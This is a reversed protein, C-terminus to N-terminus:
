EGYVLPAEEGRIRDNLRPNLSIGFENRDSARQRSAVSQRITANTIPYEPFERNFARMQELADAPIPEGAMIADGIARQIGRREGQIREQRNMMRSNAAYRESVAAPTFGLAQNIISTVPVDELILDGNRTEVGEAAYRGAKIIDRFFKPVWAETGRVFYGSTYLDVARAFGGGIGVTPGLLDVLTTTYWEEGEMIRDNDRFWLNPSGIRNTLDTGTVHGPIGNLVMGMTYNWAAPGIGDGELLLADQLFRDVDDDGGDFFLGLLTTIIGYGWVGRIGAHAMMSLTVGVFQTRAEKRVEASEGAVMQHLDRAFRFIMNVSFQRFQTFVKMWDNQMFRPRATNSYDYHIKFTLDAASQIAEDQWLGEKRAMRYSALFTATRNLVEAKHFLYGFARMVTEVRPSYEVGTEAISANDHAQTKDIAGRRLAEELAAKEDATLRGSNLMDGKALAFDKIARGTQRAADSVGQNPFSAGMIAPGFVTTQSLNVMYNAPSAGLYWIFAISSARATWPANTPQMVFEHRKALENVILGSREPDEASRSQVQAEEFNNQLDVGYKLRALQHAGHFMHFTFARLADKSYGARGKRHIRNTRISQDPLTELWRQWVADMLKNDSGADGLLKEVDAVFAPDVQAKLADSESLVGTQIKWGEAEMRDAERRQERKSEFRSFSVVKGSDDRATVFYQGFRALPFYPGKLRNSEFQARLGNIRSNTGWGSRARAADLLKTAKDIAEKKAPGTLGEDRIREMEAKHEREARKFAMQAAKRINELVATEFEDGMKDYTKAVTKFMAQYEPPLAAFEARLRAHDQRALGERKLMDRAWQANPNGTRYMKLWMRAKDFPAVDFGKSPDIGALTSRHMLDMLRGNAEKGKRNLSLWSQAVEATTAQWENRLADMEEKTRLYARGAPLKRGLESLLPRLPVVALLNTWRGGGMSDTLLDEFFKKNDTRWAKANTPIDRVWDTAKRFRGSEDRARDRGPMRLEKGTIQVASDDYIVYNRSGDGDARSGGDLYRHGPIGAERLAVSAARDANDYRERIEESRAINEPTWGAQSRNMEATLSQGEAYARDKFNRALGEYFDQGTMDDWDGNLLADAKDYAAKDGRGLQANLMDTLMTEIKDKTAKPQESMPADWDLLDTDDPIEVTYLRGAKPLTYGSETMARVLRAEITRGVSEYRDLVDRLSRGDRAANLIEEHISSAAEAEGKAFKAVVFDVGFSMKGQTLRVPALMQRYHEAVERRDAFYMGWGFAQAGEGTNMFETSFRDFDAASGHYARLEAPTMRGGGPGSPGRGGIGGETIARFTRGASTFGRGILANGIAMLIDRVRQFASALPSASDRAEAWERYQEAIVEEIIERENLNQDKYRDRVDAMRADDRRAARVMDRWEAGTFLGYPTGWINSDRLAHIIEHRMVGLAGDPAAPNVEITRGRQRGQIPIGAADALGRVVRVTMTQDLGSRRLEANVADTVERMSQPPIPGKDKPNRSESADDGEEGLRAVDSAGELSTVVAQLRERKQDYEAARAWPKEAEERLEPLRKQANAKSAATNDARRQVIEVSIQNMLRGLSAVVSAPHSAKGREFTFQATAMAEGRHVVNVDVVIETDRWQSPYVDVEVPLGKFRFGDVSVQEQDGRSAWAANIAESMAAAAKYRAIYRQGAAEAEFGPDGFAGDIVNGIDGQTTITAGGIEVKFRAKENDKRQEAVSADAAAKAEEANTYAKGEVTISRQAERVAVAELAQEVEDKFSVARAVIGDAESITREARAIEARLGNLRNSFSRRAIDLKNLDSQLTVREIMLPNGTALAAMEAMNASEEDEIEMTFSGDYKRLGNIAKLKDANLAWMKADITMETAYALVEVQFDDHGYQELLKNGQRVIRGERQEIDSPKWTVDAHHLAVLKDQVNTGAGMRPTSGMLIRVKGARVDEFIAQKEKDNAAEQVFRIEDEPVGKAVLQRKIEDYANWGGMLAVRRAEIDQADFRELAEVARSEADMDMEARAKDLKAIIEDYEAVIKEDGKAKPVSRDLFIIQTGLDKATSRWIRHVNDVVAGIKGSGPPVSINPNVARADLSVKRARDMLRLRESNREKPDSIDPLGEFDRVIERLISRQTADPKVAVMERDKGAERQSKVPPVPFPAGDNEEAFVRKIDDLSVSDTVTYVLDMLARMNMWERGLRSVEKLGGAETPEFATAASVFMTRWADFNEIGLDALEKRALNKLILYLESVSNSVPTGTLFAIGTGKREMLSRVKLHLDVAKKSGTPNGMGAVNQLRSSYNLNKFEHSEDVTLDDIGMEEFTILRDRKSDRIRDLRTQLKTVLQEAMKVGLPKRFSSFGAEAAAEEAETVASQAVELEEMVFREETTPDIDIFGFSSHGIIVMDYDGAAIRAFLRRRAPGKFDAPEAALVNAAPYLKRVDAVWQGIIHNPVVVLPKRSLGMRRREMVRGIAAFTKGAGVAHDYLVANDTIGRWIANIQHRRLNVAPSKGPLKLHSGDRQRIVRTNFKENFVETLMERRNEDQFAWDQFEAFLETGKLQSLTSAEEDVVTKGNEDQYTVKLPQSNMIRSVISLPSFAGDGTRWQTKAEGEADVTFTNTLASYNVKARRYGLHEIFSAYVQPPIWASGLNPAINMTEIRPPLVAELAAVNKDLGAGTAAHIKKKVLGSLYADAAEWRDTEPDYFARPKDGESLAKEAGARDTGLLEAVRDIDIRGIESLSVAVADSANEVREVAEPPRSVRTSMIPAKEFQSPKGKVPTEAARIIGDDPMIAFIKANAPASVFGHKAVFADYAENLKKRNAEIQTDTGGQSELAFQRRMADRIPLADRVKAIRDAGWQHKSPIAALSPFVVTQKQNRTSLTGDAKRVKVKNGKEDVVDEVTIWKKDTARYTYEGSFPTQPTLDFEVLFTKSTGDTDADVVIKLSGDEAVRVAGPEARTIALRMADAMLRYSENTREMVAQAPSVSPLRAIAESLRPGIEAPNDLTVNLAAGRGYMTGSADMKGIIQRPNKLFYENVRIATGSGAFNDVAKAPIWQSFSLALRLAEGQDIEAEGDEVKRSLIKERLARNNAEDANMLASLDIAARITSPSTSTPHRRFFLIDTVVETRANELFANSPLRIGAVLDGMKALDKRTQADSADMLFHSVVMAMLGDPAVSDLSALFFQNHITRGNVEPRSRFYLTDRGFPPNGIALAFSNSPLPVEQFGAHMVDSAPYLNKAIRATLSDYEAALVNSQGRLDQPMLGLFNGSGVSPELVAGGAFGLRKAGDWMARVVTQSTYHAAKTSNRAAAIEKPELLEELERVRKEWGSAIGDDGKSGATRFANALGGWGVYRALIAQEAPTARRNEAEIAKLTRIAAVNDAYKQGEAGQGLRLDDTITFNVAPITSKAAIVVPSEATTPGAPELALMPQQAKAGRPKRPRKAVGGASAPRAAPVRSGASGNGGGRLGEDGAAGPDVGARGGAPEGEAGRRGADGGEQPAPVEQPLQEELSGEGAALISTGANAADGTAPPEVRGSPQGQPLTSPRNREVAQIEERMARVIAVVEAPTDMGEISEDSLEMDSHIQMYANRAYPQAQEFTLGMRDVMGDLVQRFRRMGAKVYLRGIKFAVSVLEPDLGSRAENRLKSSLLAELEALEANEAETLGRLGSKPSPDPQTAVPAPAAQPKARAVPAPKKAKAEIGMAVEPRRADAIIRQAEAEPLNRSSSFFGINSPTYIVTGKADRVIRYGDETTTTGMPPAPDDPADTDRVTRDGDQKTVAGKAQAKPKWTIPESPKSLDATQLWGKFNDVTTVTFSGIRERGRGDSFGAEYLTLAPNRGLVGAVIKHEDFAGTDPNVQNIIVVTDSDRVDGLYIDVHDGDAGETRRIYGYDAPMTVSWTEGDKDKGTREQGKATEITIDLGNWPLHGMKYNGAEKQADTPEPDPLTGPAPADPDFAIFDQVARAADESLFPRAESFLVQKKDFRYAPTGKWKSWKQIEVDIRAEDGEQPTFTVTGLDNMYTDVGDRNGPTVIDNIIAAAERLQAQATDAPPATSPEADLGLAKIVEDKKARSFIFGKEKEDWQFSIKGVVPPTEKPIGTIVAARERIDRIQPRPADPAPAPAEAPTATAANEQLVRDWMARSEPAMNPVDRIQMEAIARRQDPTLERWMKGRIAEKPLGAREAVADQLRLTSGEWYEAVDPVPVPPLGDGVDVTNPPTQDTPAQMAAATLSAREGDTLDAWNSRAVRIVAARGGLKAKVALEERMKGAPPFGDWLPQLDPAAPDAAVPAPTLAEPAMPPRDPEPAPMVPPPATQPRTDPGPVRIPAAAPTEPAPMAVPAAPEVTPAPAPEPASAADMKAERAAFMASEFENVPIELEFGADRIFVSGNEERLFTGEIIRGDPDMVEIPMGAKFEPYLPAAPPAEPAPRQVMNAADVLASPRPPPAMDDIIEGTEPDYTYGPGDTPPMDPAPGTPPQGQGATPADPAPLARPPPPLAPLVEGTLGGEPTVDGERGRPIGGLAGIPGGALAGMVFDGFTNELPDLDVGAGMGGGLRAAAGEAAEQAGEELAGLAAGTAVRRAMNGTAAGSVGRNVIGSTLAGGFAGIPATMAGALNAGAEITRRVAEDEPVGQGILTRYYESERQLSGDAAAATLLETATANGGELSQGGGVAAAAGPGSVLAAAVVPALNGLVNATLLTVGRLSPREGFSWTSPDFLNGEFQSDQMAQASQDSVSGILDGGAGSIADGARRFLGGVFDTPARIVENVRGLFTTPEPREPGELLRGVLGSMAMGTGTLAGGAGVRAIDGGLSNDNRAAAGEIEDAIQIARSAIRDAAARDGTIEALATRMDVGAALRQGIAGAAREIQGPDGAMEGLASIINPPVQTRSSLGSLFDPSTPDAQPAELASALRVDAQPLGRVRPAEMGYARELPDQTFLNRAM